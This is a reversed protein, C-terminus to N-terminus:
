CNEEQLYFVYLKWWKLFQCFCAVCRDIISKEQDLGKQVVAWIFPLAFLNLCRRNSKMVLFDGYGEAHRFMSSWWKWRSLTHIVGGLAKQSFQRENEPQVPSLYTWM